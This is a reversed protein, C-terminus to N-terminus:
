RQPMYAPIGNLDLLQTDMHTNNTTFTKIFSSGSVFVDHLYATNARFRVSNGFGTFQTGNVLASNAVSVQMSHLVNLHNTWSYGSMDTCSPDPSSGAGDRAAELHDSLLEADQICYETVFYKITLSASGGASSNNLPSGPLSMGALHQSIGTSGSGPEIIGETINDNLWESLTEYSNWAYNLAPLGPMSMSQAINFNNGLTEELDGGGFLIDDDIDPGQMYKGNSEGAYQANYYAVNQGIVPKTISTHFASTFPDEIEILPDSSYFADLQGNFDYYQLGEIDYRDFGEFSTLTLKEFRDKNEV